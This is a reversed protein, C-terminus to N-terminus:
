KGYSIEDPLENEDDEEYPFNNKLKEGIQTIAACLGDCFAGRKFHEQLLNKEEDWFNEPVVADIGEDGVIAFQKENPALLILVGNRAKTKEMGLRKFIRIAEELVPGKIKDELHIRIEGSTCEEADRIADIIVTEEETNFFKIM